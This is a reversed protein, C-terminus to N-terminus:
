FTRYFGVRVGAHGIAQGVLFLGVVCARLAMPAFTRLRGARPATERAGVAGDGWPRAYGLVLLSAAAPFLSLRALSAPAGATSARAAEALVSRVLTEVGSTGLAFFLESFCFFHFTALVAVCRVGRHALYRRYGARGLRASLADGWLRTAVVGVASVVGFVLYGMTLGHWLGLVVLTVGMLLYGAARLHARRREAVYRYAAMFLYVRLWSTLSMHWRDWFEILNRAAFPRNFNEPLGFGLLGACGIMVDTYGSFDLFIQVPFLYFQLLARLWALPAVGPGIWEAGTAIVTGLIPAIIGLKIVGSFIRGWLAFSEAPAPSSGERGSWTAEFENYRNIPGATLTFFAFQYNVYAGFSLRPVQGEKVDVLVHIFKFVMYSLGITNSWSVWSLANSRLDTGGQKVLLLFLVAGTVGVFVSRGSPWRAALALLGWSGFLFAGTAVLTAESPDFSALFGANALALAVQRSPWGRLLAFVVALLLVSALFALSCTSM